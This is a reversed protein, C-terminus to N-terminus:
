DEGESSDDDSEESPPDTCNSKSDDSFEDEADSVENKNMKMNKDRIAIRIVWDDFESEGHSDCGAASGVVKLMKLASIKGVTGFLVDEYNKLCTATPISRDFKRKRDNRKKEFLKTGSKELDPQPKGLMAPSRVGGYLSVFYEVYTARPRLHYDYKFQVSSANGIPSYLRLDLEITRPEDVDEWLM